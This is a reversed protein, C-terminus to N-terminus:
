LASKIENFVIPENGLSVAKDIVLLNEVDKTVDLINETPFPRFCKIKIMGVKKGKKRYDDIVGRVTTCLSGMCVYVIKADDMKYTEILGNGYSRNFKSKFEKNVDVIEKLSEKMADHQQKKFDQYTNPFAIPGMTVPKKPDLSFMPKYKPLFKDVEKSSLIDAPEWVHTLSFGDVCVMAPLFTKEAVKFAQIITDFAEQTSECYLQIWGSDRVAMSDSHDCWINIPSSVARNAIAMVIPLRMGSAVFVMESMLLLGQSNTATFTRTGAASSGIAASMASHESEVHIMESDLSGENIFDALREVIHTQPTIPFMPIVAPKCLKVAEAIAHSCEIVKKM